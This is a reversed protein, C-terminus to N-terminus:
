EKLCLLSLIQSVNCPPPAPQLASLLRDEGRPKEGDTGGDQAWSLAPLPAPLPSLDLHLISPYVWHETGQPWVRESRWHIGEHHGSGPNDPITGVSMKQGAMVMLPTRRSKCAHGPKSPWHWLSWELIPIMVGNCLCLLQPESLRYLKGRKVFGTTSVLMHLCVRSRQAETTEDLFSRVWESAWMREKFM